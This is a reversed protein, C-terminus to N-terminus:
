VAQLVGKLLKSTLFLIVKVTVAANSRELPDSFKLPLSQM